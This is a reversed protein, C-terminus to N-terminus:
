KGSRLLSACEEHWSAALDLNQWTSSTTAHVMNDRCQKAKQEHWKAADERWDDTM